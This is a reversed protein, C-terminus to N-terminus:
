DLFGHTAECPALLSSPTAWSLHDCVIEREQKQLMEVEERCFQAEQRRTSNDIVEYFGLVAILKKSQYWMYDVGLTM